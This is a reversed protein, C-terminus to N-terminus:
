AAAGNMRLTDFSALAADADKPLSLVFPHLLRIM